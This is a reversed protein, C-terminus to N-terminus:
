DGDSMEGFLITGLIMWETEEDEADAPAFFVYAILAVFVFGAIAALATIM